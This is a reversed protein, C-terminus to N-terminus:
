TFVLLGLYESVIVIRIARSSQPGILVRMNTVHCNLIELVVFSLFNSKPAFQRAWIELDNSLNNIARDVCRPGVARSVNVPCYAYKYGNKLFAQKISRSEFKIGLTRFCSKM